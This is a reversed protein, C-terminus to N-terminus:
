IASRATQNAALRRPSAATERPSASQSPIPLSVAPPQRRAGVQVRKAGHQNSSGQQRIIAVSIGAAVLGYEVATAGSEDKAFRKLLNTM